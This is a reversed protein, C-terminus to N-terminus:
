PEKNEEIISMQTAGLSALGAQHVAATVYANVEIKAREVTKEMSESFQSEVFPINSKIEQMALAIMSKLKKTPAADHAEMMKDLADQMTQRVESKFVEKEDSHHEVKPMRGDKETWELTCPVGFGVNPSAVFTAWQAESFALRVIDKTAFWRDNSLSRSKHARRVTITMYHQHKFDSGALEAMGSVRLASIMGYAPHTERTDEIVSGVQERVPKM